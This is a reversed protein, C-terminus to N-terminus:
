GPPPLEQRYYEQLLANPLPLAATDGGSAQGAVLSPLLLAALLM